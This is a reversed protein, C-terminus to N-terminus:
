LLQRNQGTKSAERCDTRINQECEGVDTNIATLNEHDKGPDKAENSSDQNKM